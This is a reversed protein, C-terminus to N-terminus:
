EAAGAANLSAAIRRACRAETRRPDAAVVARPDHRHQRRVQILASVSKPPMGLAAEIEKSDYGDLWMKLVADHDYKPASGGVHTNRRGDASAASGPAQMEPSARHVRKRPKDALRIRLQAERASRMDNVVFGRDSATVSYGGPYYDRVTAGRPLRKLLERVTPAEARGFFWTSTAPDFAPHVETM